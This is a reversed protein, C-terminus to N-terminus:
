DPVRDPKTATSQVLVHESKLFDIDRGATWFEMAASHCAKSQVQERNCYVFFRYSNPKKSLIGHTHTLLAVGIELVLCLVLCQYQLQIMYELGLPRMNDRPQCKSFTKDLVIHVSSDNNVSPTILL